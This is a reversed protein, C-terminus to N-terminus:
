SAPPIIESGILMQEILPSILTAFAGSIHSEDRRIPTSGVFAPCQGQACTFDTSDFWVAGIQEAYAREQPARSTRARTDTASTVCDAPTSFPTYCESPDVVVPPSSLFVIHESFDNIQDVAGKLGDIWEQDSATQGGDALTGGYHNTVVVATPRVEQIHAIAAAVRAPCADVVAPDSAAYVNVSFRCANMGWVTVSIDPRREVMDLFSRAYAGSTSDGVLIIHMPADADGWSCEAIDSPRDLGQCSTQLAGPNNAIVEDLTPTLEPWTEASLASVIDGQIQAFLEGAATGDENRVVVEGAVDSAPEVAHASTEPPQRPTLAFVCLVVTVVALGSVSAYKVAPRLKRQRRRSRRRHRSRTKTHHSHTAGPELWKSQRVPNEVFHYSLVSLAGTILLVAVFYVLDGEPLLIGSFVIVPWHWLYLSYSIDGVYNTIPNAIPLIFRTEGGTGSVIVLAAALVPLAAWPAPFGRDADVVFLSAIIGAIGLWAMMSRLLTAIGALASAAVAIIAGVGLEWARSVTSFYAWTPNAQTELVAWAFSAITITVILTFIIARAHSSTGRSLAVVAFILVMLWPWVFYFQEEVALSWYHQLPSVLATAGFYDTGQLAFNWNASFLTAWVADGVTSAFRARNFMFWAAAVTVIIVLMAAPLIRKVRRRYFGVFSISGRDRHEKLLLSTILFGSIVFFIDVGVFGGAPWHFLHDAIVALVAIARLGQIDPRFSRRKHSTASQGVVAGSPM